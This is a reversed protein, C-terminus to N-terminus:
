VTYIAGNNNLEIIVKNRKIIADEIKIFDGYDTTGINVRWKRRDKKFSINKHGSTNTKNPGKRNQCNQQNTVMRLNVIRNDYKIGNIHDIKMNEPIKINYYKEYLIRHQKIEKKDINMIKYGDSNNTDCLKTWKERKGGRWRYKKDIKGTTFNFIFRDDELVIAPIDM